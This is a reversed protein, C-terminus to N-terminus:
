SFRRKSLSNKAKPRLSTDLEGHDWDLTNDLGFASAFRAPSAKFLLSKEVMKAYESSYSMAIDIVMKRDRKTDFVEAHNLGKLWMVDLKGGTWKTTKWESELRDDQLAKLGEPRTLYSGIADVAVIIDLESLMVTWRRGEFDEKWLINDTWSFRRALTHAAGMDTSAFYYLQHESASKPPRRTFNYTMDPLHLLFAVPDVFIVDGIRSNLSPSRLLQTSIVTGYSNAMLVFRSWSHQDLISRIESRMDDPSLAAHTMRFSIPLIELVIVGIQGDEEPDQDLRNALEAFFDGYTHLIGIGHIYLIPLRTKSTHPRYWYSIHQAPSSHPSLLTQPRFPFSAFWQKTAHHQYGHYWMIFAVYIDAGGVGLVYFLLPKHTINVPDLSFRLTQIGPTKGLPFKNGSPLTGKPLLTELLDVYEELEDEEDPGVTSKDLFAWCIWEKVNERGIDEIKAGHHWLSIYRKPDTITTICKKFLERRQWRDIGVVKMAPDHIFHSMPLYVLLFFLAEALLWVELAIPLRQSPSLIFLVLLCYAISLPAISQFFWAFVRSFILTGRSSPLM